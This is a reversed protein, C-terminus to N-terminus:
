GLIIRETGGVAKKRCKKVPHVGATEANECQSHLLHASRAPRNREMCFFGSLTDKPLDIYLFVNVQYWFFYVRDPTVPRMVLISYKSIKTFIQIISLRFLDNKHKRINKVGISLKIDQHHQVPFGAVFRARWM